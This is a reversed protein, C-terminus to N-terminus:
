ESIINNDKDRKVEVRRVAPCQMDAKKRATNLKELYQDGLENERFIGGKKGPMRKYREMLNGEEYEKFSLEDQLVDHKCACTILNEESQKGLMAMCTVVMRVTDITPYSAAPVVVPSLLLLFLLKRSM